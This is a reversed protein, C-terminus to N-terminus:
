HTFLQLPINQTHWQSNHLLCFLIQQGLISLTISSFKNWSCAAFHLWINTASWRPFVAHAQSYHQACKYSKRITQWINYSKQIHKLINFHTYVTNPIQCCFPLRGYHCYLSRMKM